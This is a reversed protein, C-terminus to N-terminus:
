KQCWQCVTEGLTPRQYVTEPGSHPCSQQGVWAESSGALLQGKGDSSPKRSAGAVKRTPSPPPASSPQGMADRLPHTVVSHLSLRIGHWWSLGTLTLIASALPHVGPGEERHGVVGFASTGEPRGTSDQRSLTLRSKQPVCPWRPWVEVWVQKWVRRSESGKERVRGGPVFSYM